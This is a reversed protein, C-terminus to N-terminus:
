PKVAVFEVVVFNRHQWHVLMFLVLHASGKVAKSESRSHSVIPSSSATRHRFNRCILLFKKSFFFQRAQQSEYKKDNKTSVGTPFISLIVRDHPQMLFSFSSFSRDHKLADKEAEVEDRYQAHSSLLHLAPSILNGDIRNIM